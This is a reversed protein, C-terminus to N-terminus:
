APSNVAYSEAGDLNLTESTLSVLSVERLFVAHRPHQEFAAVFADSILTRNANVITGGLAIASPLTVLALCQACRGLMEGMKEIARRAPDWPEEDHALESIREGRLELPTERLADLHPGSPSSRLLWYWLGHGSALRDFTDEYGPWDAGDARTDANDRPDVPALLNGGESAQVSPGPGIRAVGVGSGPVVLCASSTRVGFRMPDGSRLDIAGASDGGTVAWGGAEVDNLYAFSATSPLSDVDPRVLEANPGLYSPWSRTRDSSVRGPVGIAVNAPPEPLDRLFQNITGQLTALNSAKATEQRIVVRQGDDYRVARLRTKTAGLDGAVIVSGHETARTM